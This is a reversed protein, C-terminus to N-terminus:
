EREKPYGTRPFIHSRESSRILEVNKGPAKLVVLYEDSQGVPYRVPAM